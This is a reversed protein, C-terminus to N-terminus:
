SKGNLRGRRESSISNHRSVALSAQSQSDFHNSSGHYSSQITKVSHVSELTSTKAGPVSQIGSRFSGSRDTIVTLFQSSKDQKPLGINFNDESAEDTSLQAEEFKSLKARAVKHRLRLIYILSLIVFVAFVGVLLAVCISLQTAKTEIEVIEKDKSSLVPTEFEDCREGKFGPMCICRRVESNLYRECTGNNMCFKNTENCNVKVSDSELGIVQLTSNGHAVQGDASKATCGYTGRHFNNVNEIVLAHNSGESELYLDAMEHMETIDKGNKHWQVTTIAASSEVKCELMKFQNRYAVSSPSMTVRLQCTNDSRKACLTDFILQRHKMINSPLPPELPLYSETNSGQRLMLIYTTRKVENFCDTVTSGAADVFILQFRELGGHQIAWVQEIM